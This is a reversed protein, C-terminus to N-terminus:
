YPVFHGFMVLLECFWFCFGYFVMSFGLFDGYVLCVGNFDWYFGMSSGMSCFVKNPGFAKQAVPFFCRRHGGWLFVCFIPSFINKAEFFLSFLSFIMSECFFVYNKAALVQVGNSSLFRLRKIM